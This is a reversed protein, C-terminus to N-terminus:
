RQRRAQNECRVFFFVLLYYGSEAGTRGTALERVFTLFPSVCRSYSRGDHRGLADATGRSCCGMPGSRPEDSEVDRQDPLRGELDCKRREANACDLKGDVDKPGLLSVPPPSQAYYALPRVRWLFCLM